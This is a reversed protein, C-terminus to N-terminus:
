SAAGSASKMVAERVADDDFVCSELGQAGSFDAELINRACRFDANRFDAERFSAGALDAGDFAPHVIQVFGVSGDPDEVEENLTDPPVDPWELSAGQFVAGRLNSEQFSCDIIKVPPRIGSLGAYPHIRSFCVDFCDVFSFDVKTLSVEERSSLTGWEGEYFSAGRISKIDNLRFSFNSIRAGRLDIDTKGLRVLRRIAGAIRLHGEDTDWQKFDQIEDRYRQGERKTERWSILLALVM